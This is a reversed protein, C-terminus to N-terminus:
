HRGSGAGGGLLAGQRRHRRWGHRCQRVAREVDVVERVTRQRRTKKVEPRLSQDDAQSMGCSGYRCSTTVQMPRNLPVEVCVEAGAGSYGTRSFSTSGGTHSTSTRCVLEAAHQLQVCPPLPRGKTDNKPKSTTGAVPTYMLVSAPSSPRKWLARSSVLVSSKSWRTRQM